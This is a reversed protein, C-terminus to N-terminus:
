LQEVDEVDWGFKKFEQTYRYMVCHACECNMDGHKPFICVVPTNFLQQLNTPLRKYRVKFGRHVATFPEQKELSPLMICYPEVIKQVKEYDKDFQKRTM